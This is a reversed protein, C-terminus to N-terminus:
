KWVIEMAIKIAMDFMEDSKVEEEEVNKCLCVLRAFGYIADDDASM